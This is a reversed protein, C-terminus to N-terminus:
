DSPKQKLEEQETMRQLRGQAHRARAALMQDYKAREQRYLLKYEEDCPHQHTRM